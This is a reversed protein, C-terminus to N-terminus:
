PDLFVVTTFSTFLSGFRTARGGCGNNKKGYQEIILCKKNLLPRIAGRHAPHMVGQNNSADYRILTCKM